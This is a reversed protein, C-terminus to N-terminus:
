FFRVKIKPSMDKSPGLLIKGMKWWKKPHVWILIKGKFIEQRKISGNPGNYFMLNILTKLTKEEWFRIEKSPGMIWSFVVHRNFIAEPSLIGQDESHEGSRPIKQIYFFALGQQHNSLNPWDKESINWLEKLQCFIM